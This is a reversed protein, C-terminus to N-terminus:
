FIGRHEVGATSSNDFPKEFKDACGCFGVDGAGNEDVKWDGPKVEVNELLKEILRPGGLNEDMLRGAVPTFRGFTLELSRHEATFM